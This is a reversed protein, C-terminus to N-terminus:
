ARAIIVAGVIIAAAALLTDQSSPGSPTATATPTNFYVNGANDFVKNVTQYRNESDTKTVSSQTSKGGGGGM